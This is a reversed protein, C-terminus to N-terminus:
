SEKMGRGRALRNLKYVAADGTGCEVIKHAKELSELRKRLFPFSIGYDESVGTQYKDIYM